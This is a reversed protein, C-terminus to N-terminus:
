WKLLKTRVLYLEMHIGVQRYNNQMIKDQSEKDKRILCINSEISVYSCM